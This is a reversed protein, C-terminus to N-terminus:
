FSTGLHVTVDGPRYHFPSSLGLVDPMEPYQELLNGSGRFGGDGDQNFCTGLPGERHSRNVFRM